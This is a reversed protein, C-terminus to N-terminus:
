FLKTQEPATYIHPARVSFGLRKELELAMYRILEPSCLEEPQHVFFYLRQLGQSSWEGIREIWDDIRQYDSAHLSNGVFRVFAQPMSLRMHVLSRFKSTDTIISTVRLSRMQEFLRDAIQANQFWDEDRLELALRIDTPWQRLYAELVEYQAPAFSTHLQLFVPGLREGFHRIADCFVETEKEQNQLRGYHSIGQYVKPCFAFDDPVMAIWREILDPTPIRYHTMNLEIANLQKAYHRLFDTSKTGRPYLKGVWGPQGWRTSGLYIEPTTTQASALVGANDFHDAPLTFDVQDLALSDTKGFKM